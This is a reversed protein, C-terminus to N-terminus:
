REGVADAVSRGAGAPSKSDEPPALCLTSLSLTVQLDDAAEKRQSIQMDEVNLPIKATELRYMLKALASMPGTVSLKVGVRIFQKEKEPMPLDPTLNSLTVGSEQIWTLLSTRLQQQADAPASTLGNATLTTWVPRLKKERRFLIDANHLATDAKDFSAQADSRADFYPEIVFSYVVVLGIIAAVVVAMTKERKNLVVNAGSQM